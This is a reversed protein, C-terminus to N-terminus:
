AEARVEALVREATTRAPVPEADGRILSRGRLTRYATVLLTLVIMAPIYQWGGVVAAMSGSSNFSAHLLAVALISGGTDVLLTGFLYRLFPAAVALLVWDLTAEGWTTGRWGHAAFALPIHIIFFPVATLLSGVLLGRRAMLRRQVFGSWATEEWLNGLLAGFVVTLFLYTGVLKLWGGDPQHLTGTVAGVVLTLVPMAVLLLAYRGFGIRWRGIGAYLRRLGARGLTAGTIATAAGLLFVLEALLAPTLDQGNVLFVLQVAWTLGIAITSFVGVPHRRTFERVRSDRTQESPVQEPVM